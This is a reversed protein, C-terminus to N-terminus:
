RALWYLWAYILPLLFALSDFRDLFGGHGPIMASSDKVGADRKLLSEVLDGMPGFLGVLMGLAVAYGATLWPIPLAVAGAGAVLVSGVFGGAFGEWSKKPSVREFLRHRGFARGVFYAVTDNAWVTLLLLVFFAGMAPDTFGREVSLLAEPTLASGPAPAFGTRIAIASGLTLAPYLVGSLTASVNHLPSGVRRWLEVMLVAAAGVLLVPLIADPARFAFLGNLLLGLTLGLPRNPADGKARALGYFEWQCLGALLLIMAVFPWGGLWSLGLVVPGAVVGVAVRAFLNSRKGTPPPSGPEASPIPNAQDEAMPESVIRSRRRPM